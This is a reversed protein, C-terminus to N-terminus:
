DQGHGSRLEGAHNGQARLEGGVPSRQRARPRARRVKRGVSQPKCDIHNGQHASDASRPAGHRSSARKLGIGDVRGVRVGAIRVAAKDDLGAVSDFVIDVTPGKRGFLSIDEIRLIMYGIVLLCATMFIGVRLAQNM